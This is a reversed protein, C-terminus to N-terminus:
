ATMQIQVRKPLADPLLQFLLLAQEALIHHALTHVKGGTGDYGRVWVQACALNAHGGVKGHAQGVRLSDRGEIHLHAGQMAM